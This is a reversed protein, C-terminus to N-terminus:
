RSYFEEGTELCIGALRGSGSCAGCDLAIHNNIKYIYGPNDNNPIKQTPTHGTIVIKDEFYPMSYDTRYWVLDEISYEEMPTLYCFNHGLGAHVLIYEINNVTIEEYADFEGMFDLVETKEKDTLNSFEELTSKGGNRFWDMIYLMDEENLSEIFEETIENQLLKLCKYAMVEHNGIICSCNDLSMLLQLCKISDRGRDVVDGMVYLYDNENFEMKKLLTNLQEFQGHIDGIVYTSM